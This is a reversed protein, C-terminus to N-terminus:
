MESERLSSVDQCAVLLKSRETKHKEARERSRKRRGCREDRSSKRQQRAELLAIIGPSYCGGHIDVPEDVRCM